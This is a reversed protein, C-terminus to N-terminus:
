GEQKRVFIPSSWAREETSALCDDSDPRASCPEPQLCRDIARRQNGPHYNEGQCLRQLRGADDAQLADRSDAPCGPKQEFSGVARVQFIPGGELEVESGM